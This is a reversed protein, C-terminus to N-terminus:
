VVSKRDVIEYKKWDTTGKIARDQMNDFGLMESKTGDIRLWLGSWEVVDASRVFGSMRLRKGRYEDAKISQMLTGFGNIKPVISKLTASSTGSHTITKDVFMEYDKPHSGAAFWGKPTEANVMLSTGFLLSALVLSKSKM